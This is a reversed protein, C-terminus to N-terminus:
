SSGPRTMQGNFRKLLWINGWELTMATMENSNAERGSAFAKSHFDLSKLQETL